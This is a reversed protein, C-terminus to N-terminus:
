AGEVQWKDWSYISFPRTKFDTGDKKIRQLRISARPVSLSFAPDVSVIRGRDGNQNVAVTKGIEIKHQKLYAGVLITRMEERLKDRKKVLDDDREKLNILTERQEATIEIEDSLYAPKKKM